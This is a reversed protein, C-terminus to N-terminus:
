VLMGVARAREEVNADGVDVLDVFLPRCLTDLEERLLIMPALNAGVDAIGVAV